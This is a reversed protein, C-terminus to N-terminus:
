TQFYMSQVDIKSKTQGKVRRDTLGSSSDRRRLKPSIYLQNLVGM